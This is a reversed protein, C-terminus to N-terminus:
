SEGAVAPAFPKDDPLQFGTAPLAEFELVIKSLDSSPFFRCIYRAVPVADVFIVTDRIASSDPVPLELLHVRDKIEENTWNSTDLHSSISQRLLGEFRPYYAEAAKVAIAHLPDRLSDMTM